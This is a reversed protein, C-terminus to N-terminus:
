QINCHLLLNHWPQRALRIAGSKECDRQVDLRVEPPWQAPDFLSTAVTIADIPSSSLSTCSKTTRGINALEHGPWFPSAPFPQKHVRTKTKRIYICMQEYGRDPALTSTERKQAM